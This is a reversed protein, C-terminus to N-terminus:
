GVFHDGVFLEVGEGDEATGRCDQEDDEVMEEFDVRIFCMGHGGRWLIFHIFNRRTALRIDHFDPLLLKRTDSRTPQPDRLSLSPHSQISFPLVPSPPSSILFPRHLSLIIRPSSSSLNQTRYQHVALIAEYMVMWCSQPLQSQQSM